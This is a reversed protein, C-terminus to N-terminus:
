KNEGKILPELAAVLCEGHFDWEWSRYDGKPAGSGREGHRKRFFRFARKHLPHEQGSRHYGVNLASWDRHGYTGINKGCLDCVTVPTVVPQNKM